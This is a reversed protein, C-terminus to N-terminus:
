ENEGESDIQTDPLQTDVDICTKQKKPPPMLKPSSIPAGVEIMMDLTVNPEDDGTQIGERMWQEREHGYDEITNQLKAITEQLERVKAFHRQQVNDDHMKALVAQIKAYVMNANGGDNHRRFSALSKMLASVLKEDTSVDAVFNM